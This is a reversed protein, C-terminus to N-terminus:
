IRGCLLKRISTDESNSLRTLTREVKSLRARAYAMPREAARSGFGHDPAAPSCCSRCPCCCRQSKSLMVPKSPRPLRCLLAVTRVRGPCWQLRGRHQQKQCPLPLSAALFRGPSRCRPGQRLPLGPDARQLLSVFCCCSQLDVDDIGAVASLCLNCGMRRLLSVSGPQSDCGDCAGASCGDGNQRDERRASVRQLQGPM